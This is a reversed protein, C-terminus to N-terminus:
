APVEVPSLMVGFVFAALGAVALLVLVGAFVLILAGVPPPDRRDPDPSYAAM